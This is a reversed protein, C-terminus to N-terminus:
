ACPIKASWTVIADKNRPTVFGLMTQHPGFNQEERYNVDDGENREQQKGHELVSEEPFQIGFAL